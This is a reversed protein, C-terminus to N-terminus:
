DQKSVIEKLQITSDKLRIKLWNLLKKTDAETKARKASPKWSVEFVPITDVKTFDTVITRAFGLSILSEYNSKAEASIDHFPIQKAKFRKMQNVESELLRIKENKGLLQNKQSQYLEEVYKLQDIQQNQAGHVLKLECKELYDFESMRAKWTAAVGDPIGENGMFVLEIFPTSGENFEVETFNKLFRGDKIFKYPKINQEIFTNADSKFRFEQYVEWFIYGAPIMVALATISVLRAILRRRKSDAYRVM